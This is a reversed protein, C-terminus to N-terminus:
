KSHTRSFYTGFYIRRDGLPENDRVDTLAIGYKKKFDVLHVRENTKPAEIITNADVFISVHTIKEFTEKPGSFILDGPQLEDKKIKEAKLYQELADRPIDMGATRYALHTLGSCDVASATVTSGQVQPLHASMGGWFYLDGLFERAADLIM